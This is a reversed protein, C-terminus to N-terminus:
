VNCPPLSSYQLSYMSNTNDTPDQSGVLEKAYALDFAAASTEPKNLFVHDRLPKPLGNSFIVLVQRDPLQLRRCESTIRDYYAKVTESPKM